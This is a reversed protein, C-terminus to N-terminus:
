FKLDHIIDTNIGRRKSQELFKRKKYGKQSPIPTLVSQAKFALTSSLTVKRDFYRTSPKYRETSLNQYVSSNIEQTTNILQIQSIGPSLSLDELHNNKKM